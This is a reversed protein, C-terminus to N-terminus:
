TITVIFQWLPDILELGMVASCVNAVIAYVTARAKSKETLLKRYAVLEVVTIVIEIPLYQFLILWANAGNHMVSVALFVAFAGQTVLNVLLFRM